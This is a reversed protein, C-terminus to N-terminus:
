GPARQVSEGPAPEPPREASSGVQPGPAGADRARLRAAAAEALTRLTMDEQRPRAPDVGRGALLLVGPRHPAAAEARRPIARRPCRHILLRARGPARGAGRAHVPAPPRRGPQGTERLRRPPQGRLLDAARRARG